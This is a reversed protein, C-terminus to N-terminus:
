AAKQVGEVNKMKPANPAVTSATTGPLVFGYDVCESEALRLAPVFAPAQLPAICARGHIDHRGMDIARLVDQIDPLASRWIPKRQRSITLSRRDSTTTRWPSGIAAAVAAPSPTAGGVVIAFTATVKDSILRKCCMERLLVNPDIPSDM